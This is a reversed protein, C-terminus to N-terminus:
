NYQALASCASFFFEFGPKFQIDRRLEGRGALQPIPYGPNYLKCIGKIQESGECQESLLRNQCMLPEGTQCVPHVSYGAAGIGM